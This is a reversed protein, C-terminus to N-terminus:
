GLGGVLSHAAEAPSGESTQPVMIKAPQCDGLVRGHRDALVQLVAPTFLMREYHCLVYCGHRPIFEEGLWRECELLQAVGLHLYSGWNMDLLLRPRGRGERSAEELIRRLNDGAAEADFCGEPMLMQTVPRISVREVPPPFRPDPGRRGLLSLVQTSPYIGNLYITPEQRALGEALFSIAEDRWQQPRDCLLVAHDRSPPKSIGVAQRAHHM